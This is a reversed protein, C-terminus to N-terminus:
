PARPVRCHKWRLRCDVVIARWNSASAFTWPTLCVDLAFLHFTCVECILVAHSRDQEFGLHIHLFPNLLSYIDIFTDPFGCRDRVHPRLAAPLVDHAITKWRTSTEQDIHRQHLLGSTRVCFPLGATREDCRHQWGCRTRLSHLSDEEGIGQTANRSSCSTMIM